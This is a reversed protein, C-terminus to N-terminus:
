AGQGAAGNLAMLILALDGRKDQRYNTVENLAEALSAAAAESAFTRGSVRWCRALEGGGQWARFRGKGVSYYVFYRAPTAPEEEARYGVLAATAPDPAPDPLPPDVPAPIPVPTPVPPLEPAVAPALSAAGSERALVPDPDAPVPAAPTDLTALYADVLARQEAKSMRPSLAPGIRGTYGKVVARPYCSSCCGRSAYRGETTGCNVCRDYHWSWGRPEIPPAAVEAPPAATEPATAAPTAGPAEGAGEDTALHRALEVGRALRLCRPCRGERALQAADVERIPTRCRRHAGGVDEWGPCGVAEATPAPAVPAAEPVPIPAPPLAAAQRAAEWSAHQVHCRYCRGADFEAGDPHLCPHPDAADGWGRCADYERSWRPRVVAVPRDPLLATM